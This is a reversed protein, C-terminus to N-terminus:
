GEEHYIDLLHANGHDSIFWVDPWFRQESFYLRILACVEAWPTEESFCLVPACFDGVEWFTRHDETILDGEEPEPESECSRDCLPDGCIRCYDDNM